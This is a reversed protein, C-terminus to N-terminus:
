YEKMCQVGSSERVIKCSKANNRIVVLFTPLLQLIFFTLMKDITLILDNKNRFSFAPCLEEQTNFSGM